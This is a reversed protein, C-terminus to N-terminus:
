SGFDGWRKTFWFPCANDGRVEQQVLISMCRWGRVKLIFQQSNWQGNEVTAKIRCPEDKLCYDQKCRSFCAILTTARQTLSSSFHGLMFCTTLRRFPFFMLHHFCFMKPNNIFVRPLIPKHVKINDKKKLVQFM